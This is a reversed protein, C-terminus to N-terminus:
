PEDPFANYLKEAFEVATYTATFAGGTSGILFKPKLYKINRWEFFDNNLTAWKYFTYSLLFIAVLLLLESIM